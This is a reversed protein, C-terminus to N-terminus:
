KHDNEGEEELYFSLPKLDFNSQQKLQYDFKQFDLRNGFYDFLKNKKPPPQESVEEEIRDGKWAQIKDIICSSQKKKQFQKGPEERIKQVWRPPTPNKSAEPNETDMQHLLDKLSDRGPPLCEARHQNNVIDIQREFHQDEQGLGELIAGSRGLPSPGWEGRFARFPDPRSREGFPREEEFSSDDESTDTKDFLNDFFSNDKYTKEIKNSDHKFLFEQVKEPYRKREKHFKRLIQRKRKNTFVSTFKEFDRGFFELCKYFTNTENESWRLPKKRRSNKVMLSSSKSLRSLLSEGKEDKFFRKQKKKIQRKTLNEFAFEARKGPPRQGKSHKVKKLNQKM